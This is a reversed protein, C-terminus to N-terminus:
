GVSLLLVPEQPLYKPGQNDKLFCARGHGVIEEVGLVSHGRDPSQCWAPGMRKGQGPSHDGGM